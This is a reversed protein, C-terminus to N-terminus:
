GRREWVSFQDEPMAWVRVPVTAPNLCELRHQGGCDENSQVELPCEDPILLRDGPILDRARKRTEPPATEATSLTHYIDM